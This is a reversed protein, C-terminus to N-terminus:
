RKDGVLQNVKTEIRDATKEISKVKEEVVAVREVLKPDTSTLTTGIAGGGALGTIAAFLVGALVAPSHKKVVTPVGDSDPM